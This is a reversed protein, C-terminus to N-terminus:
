VVQKGFSVELAVPKADDKVKETEKIHLLAAKAQFKPRVMCDNQVTIPTPSLGKAYRAANKGIKRYIEKTILPAQPFLELNTLPFLDKQHIVATGKSQLGIGIGSGSLKAATLAIFSVDSTNYVKVFRYRLGEEEIGAAIERLVDYHSLGNITETQSEGFAPAVGIVVEDNYLGVAAEGTERIFLKQENSDAKVSTTNDINFNQSQKLRELVKATILKVLQENYEM